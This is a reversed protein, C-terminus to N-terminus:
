PVKHGLVPYHPTATTSYWCNDSVNFYGSQDYWRRDGTIPYIFCDTIKTCGIVPTMGPHPCKTCGNKADNLYYYKNCKFSGDAYCTANDPCKVCGEGSYYDLGYDEADAPIAYGPNCTYNGGTCTANNPCELCLITSNPPTTPDRFYGDNCTTTSLSRHRTSVTKTDNNHGCDKAPDFAYYTTCRTFETFDECVTNDYLVCNDSNQDYINNGSISTCTTKYDTYDKWAPNYQRCLDCCNTASAATGTIFIGMIGCAFIHRIKM